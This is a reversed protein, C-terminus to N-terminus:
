QFRCKIKNYKITDDFYHGTCNKIDTENLKNNSKM